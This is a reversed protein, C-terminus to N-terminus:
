SEAANKRCFDFGFYGRWYYDFNWNGKLTVFPKDYSESDYYLGIFEEEGNKLIVDCERLIALWKNPNRLLKTRIDSM